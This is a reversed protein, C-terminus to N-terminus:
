VGAVNNSISFDFEEVKESVTMLLIHAFNLSDSSFIQLSYFTNKEEFISIQIYEELDAM